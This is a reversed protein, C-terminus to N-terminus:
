NQEHETEKRQNGIWKKEHGSIYGICRPDFDSMIYRKGEQAFVRGSRGYGCCFDAVTDYRKALKELIVTTEYIEDWPPINWLCATAWGGNLRVPVAHQPSLRKVAHGGAIICAPKGYERVGRSVVDLLDSYVGKQTVGALKAYKSFGHIWPLESFWIDADFMEKPVGELLDHRFSVGSEGVYREVSPWEVYHNGIATNYDEM